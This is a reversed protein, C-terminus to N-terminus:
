IDANSGSRPFINWTQMGIMLSSISQFVRKYNNKVMLSHIKERSDIYNHECTILKIKYKNFNLSYLKEFESGETDISLYDIVGPSNYKALLNKLSITEVEYINGSKKGSYSYDCHSFLNITSLDTGKVENFQVKSNFDRWVCNFEINVKRNIVLDRDFNIAPEALIEDWCFKNELLFTSSLEVGDIAGFEVFYGNRKFDLM